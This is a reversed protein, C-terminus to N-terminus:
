SFTRTEKKALGEPRDVIASVLVTENSRRIVAGITDRASM